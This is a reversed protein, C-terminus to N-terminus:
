DGGEAGFEPVQAPYGACSAAAGDAVIVVDVDGGRADLFLEHFGGVEVDEGEGRLGLGEGLTLPDVEASGLTEFGALTRGEEEGGEGLTPRPATDM